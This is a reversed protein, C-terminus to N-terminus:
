VDLRQIWKPWDQRDEHPYDLFEVTDGKFLMPAVGKPGNRNKTVMIARTRKSMSTEQEDEQHHLMLVVDADQEIAGSDRLDDNRPARRGGPGHDFRRLQSLLIIPVEIQRALAKIQQTANAVELNRSERRDLDLIQLYDIVVLQIDYRAKYQRCLGKLSSITLMYPDLVYLPVGESARVAETLEIEYQPTLIGKPDEVLTSPTQSRRSLSRIGIELSTMEKSFFLTPHGAEAVHESIGLSFATKGDSPRGAIVCLQGPKLRVPISDLDRYGLLFGVASVGAHKLTHDRVHELLDHLLIAETKDGTTASLAYIENQLSELIADVAEGDEAKQTAESCTRVITRLKAKEKIQRLYYDYNGGDAQKCLREAYDFFKLGITSDDFLIRDLSIHEKLMQQAISWLKRHESLNFDSEVITSFSSEILAPDNLVSGIVQRESVKAAIEIM